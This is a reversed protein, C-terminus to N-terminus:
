PKTKGTSSLMEAPVLKIGVQDLVRRDDCYQYEAAEYPRHKDVLFPRGLPRLGEAGLVFYTCDKGPFTDYPDSRSTEHMFLPEGNVFGILRRESWSSSPNAPLVLEQRDHLPKGSEDVWQLSGVIPKGKAGSEAAQLNVCVITRGRDHAFVDGDCAFLGEHGDRDVWHFTRDANVFLIRSGGALVMAEGVDSRTIWHGRLLQQSELTARPSGSEALVQPPPHHTKVRFWPTVHWTTTYCGALLLSLCVLACHSHRMQRAAYVITRRRSGLHAFVVDV